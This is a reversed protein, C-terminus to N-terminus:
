LYADPTVSGFIFNNLFNVLFKSSMEDNGRLRSHSLNLIRYRMM